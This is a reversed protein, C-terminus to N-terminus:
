FTNVVDGCDPMESGYYPNKIAKDASLWYAKKMPCYDRYVTQNSLRVSKSLSYINMSLSAFHERQHEIKQVEAIHRADYILKSQLSIFAKLESASLSSRDIGNLASVLANAKESADSANSNVLANKLGYYLPLISSLQYRITSDYSPLASKSFKGSSSNFSFFIFSFFIIIPSKM